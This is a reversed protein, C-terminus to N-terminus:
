NPLFLSAQCCIANTVTGTFAASSAAPPLTVLAAELSPVKTFDKLIFFIEIKKDSMELTLYKYKMYAFHHQYLTYM